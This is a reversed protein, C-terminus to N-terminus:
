SRKPRRQSRTPGPAGLNGDGQVAAVMEEVMKGLDLMQTKVIFSDHWVDFDAKKIFLKGGIKRHPLPNIPDRLYKTLTRRSIDSYAVLNSMSLYEKTISEPPM